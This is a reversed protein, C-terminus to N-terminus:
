ACVKLVDDNEANETTIEELPNLVNVGIHKPWVDTKEWREQCESCLSLTEAIFLETAALLQLEFKEFLLCESNSIAELRTIQEDTTHVKCSHIKRLAEISISCKKKPKRMQPEDPSSRGSCGGM